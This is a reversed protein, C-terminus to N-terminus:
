STEKELQLKVSLIKQKDFLDVIQPYNCIAFERFWGSCLTTCVKKLAKMYALKAPYKWDKPVLFREIAIVYTEEAICKLKDDYSM